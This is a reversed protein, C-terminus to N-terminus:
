GDFSVAGGLFKVDELKVNDFDHKVHKEKDEIVLSYASGEVGFVRLDKRELKVLEGTFGNYEVKMTTAEKKEAWIPGTYDKHSERIRTRISAWCDSCCMEGGYFMPCPIPNGCFDCTANM